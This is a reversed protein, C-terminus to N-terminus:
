KLVKFDEGKEGEKEPFTPIPRSSKSPAAKIKFKKIIKKLSFKENKV